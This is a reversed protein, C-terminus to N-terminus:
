GHVPIPVGVIPAGLCGGEEGIFCLRVKKGLRVCACGLLVSGDVGVAGSSCAPLAGSLWRSFASWWV